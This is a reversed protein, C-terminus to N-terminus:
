VPGLLVMRHMDKPLFKCIHFDIFFVFYEPLARFFTVDLSPKLLKILLIFNHHFYTVHFAFLFQKDQLKIKVITQGHPYSVTICIIGGHAQPLHRTGKRRDQRNDLTSQHTDLGAARLSGFRAKVRIFRRKASYLIKLTVSAILSPFEKLASINSGGHRKYINM